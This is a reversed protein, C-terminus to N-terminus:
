KSWDISDFNSRFKQSLNNRPADGKGNQVTGGTKKESSAATACSGNCGANSAGTKQEVAMITDKRYHTQHKYFFNFTFIKRRKEIRNLLSSVIDKSLGSIQLIVRLNIM